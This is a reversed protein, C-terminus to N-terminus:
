GDVSGNGEDPVVQQYLLELMGSVTASHSSELLVDLKDHLARKRNM